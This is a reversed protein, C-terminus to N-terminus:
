DAILEWIFKVSRTEGEQIYEAISAIKENVKEKQVKYSIQFAQLVMFHKEVNKKYKEQNRLSGFIILWWFQKLIKM